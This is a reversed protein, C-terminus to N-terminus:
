IWSRELIKGRGVFPQAVAERIRNGPTARGGYNRALWKRLDGPIFTEELPLPRGIQPRDTEVVRSRGKQLPRLYMPRAPGILVVVDALPEHQDLPLGFRLGLM